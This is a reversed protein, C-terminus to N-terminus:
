FARTYPTPINIPYHLTRAANIPFYPDRLFEKAIAILDAKHESLIKEAQEAETIMGVATSIIGTEKIQRAFSVQYGPVVTSKPVQTFGGGSATVMDVGIDKLITTLRISDEMQWANLDDSYDVASLRVLLPMTEPIVNRIEKITDTLLRIRNEFSGGFEDTRKNSLASYFQHFIYGHGAHLEISDFGAAVARQSAKVFDIKIQEIEPITLALSTHKHDLKLPSAGKTIRGGNEPGVYTFVGNNHHHSGKAGAHWLQVAIKAGQQQVFQVIPKWANLQEDNWLGADDPTNMGDPSVATCETIILAAGGVARSGLHVLHWHNVVGNKAMYQQMPSVVIRNRLTLDRMTLPSFLIPQNM